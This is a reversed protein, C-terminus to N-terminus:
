VNGFDHSEYFRVFEDWAAKENWEGMFAKAPVLNTRRRPEPFATQIALNLECKWNTRLRTETAVRAAFEGQTEIYGSPNSKLIANGSQYTELAQRGYAMGLLDAHINDRIYDPTKVVAARNEKWTRMLYSTFRDEEWPGFPNPIVFKGLALKRKQCYFRFVQWTLGKSLGYPSFARLPAEGEGEDPEFVTGTLVVGTGGYKLLADLVHPLNHCNNEAAAVSDFDDSKYNRVESAHHCLLDFPGMQQLVEIFQPEGFEIPAPTSALRQLQKVRQGRLGHYANPERRLPCIVEHGQSVLATVFHLGTFSSGGTFLIRM